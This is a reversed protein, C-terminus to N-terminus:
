NGAKDKANIVLSHAGAFLDYATTNYPVDIIVGDLMVNSEVIGNEDTISPNITIEGTVEENNDINGTIVPAKNDVTFNVQKSTTGDTVMLTHAGDTLATTDMTYGVADVDAAPIEFYVEMYPCYGTSDGITHVATFDTSLNTKSGTTADEPGIKAPLYENGNPLYMVINKVKFDDRNATPEYKDYVAASDTGAWFKVMVNYTDSDQNYEFYQNDIETLLGNPSQWWVLYSIVEDEDSTVANYFGGARDTAVYGLYGGNEIVPKTSVEEDDIYIKTNANSDGNNATVTITGKVSDGEAINTRIGTVDNIHNIKVKSIETKTSRFSNAASVYFEVYDHNFLENATISAFFKTPVRQSTETNIIWDGTGDFRYIVSIGERPLDSDEINYEIYIDENQNVAEPITDNLTVKISSGDDVMYSLQESNVSGLNKATIAAYILMEPGEPNVRLDLSYNNLLDTLGNYTYSSVLERSEGANKKVIAFTRGGTDALGNQNTYAFVLTNEDIGLASRLDDQTPYSTLGALSFKSRNCWIVATQGAPLICVDSSLDATYLKLAKAYSEKVIYQLEYEDNLNIDKSTTNTIEICEMLDTAAGYESPRSIDNPYLETLYLGEPTLDSPTTVTRQGNLQASYAYGPSPLVNERYVGMATGMDPISLEVSTGDIGTATYESCVKGGVTEIRFDATNAWNTNKNGTIAVVKVDDPIRMDTRFESETTDSIGKRNYLKKNWLVVCEGPEIVVDTSGDMNTLTQTLTTSGAQYVIRYNENFNIKEDSTNVVEVFEMLDTTYYYNNVSNYGNTERTNASTSRDVDNNYVETIWLGKGAMTYDSNEAKVSSINLGSLINGVITTFMLGVALFKKGNKM